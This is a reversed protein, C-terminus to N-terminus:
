VALLKDIQNQNNFLLHANKFKSSENLLIDNNANKQNEGYKINQQEFVENEITSLYKSAKEQQFSLEIKINELEKKAYQLIYESDQINSKSDISIDSLNKNYTELYSPDIKAIAKLEEQRNAQTSSAHKVITLTGITSKAGNDNANSKELIMTSEGLTTKYSITTDEYKSEIVSNVTLEKESNEWYIDINDTSDQNISVDMTSNINKNTNDSKIFKVSIDIDDNNIKNLQFKTKDSNISLNIGYESLKSTIKEQQTKGDTNTHESVLQFINQGSKNDIIAFSNGLNGDELFNEVDFSVEKINGLNFTESGNNSINKQTNKSSSTNLVLKLDTNTNNINLKNDQFSIDLNDSNEIIGNKDIKALTNNNTDQIEINDDFSNGFSSFDIVMKDNTNNILNKEFKILDISKNGDINNLINQNFYFEKSSHNISSKNTLDEIKAKNDTLKIKIDDQLNSIHVKNDKYLFSASNQSTTKFEKNEDITALLNNNTDFFEIKDKYSSSNFNDIDIVYKSIEGEKIINLNELNVLSDSSINIGDGSTSKLSLKGNIIDAEVSTQDTKSNIASTLSQTLDNEEFKVTGIKVGNISFNEDTQGAKINKTKINDIEFYSDYDGKFRLNIDNVIDKLNVQSDSNQMDLISEYDKQKMLGIDNDSKLFIANGINDFSTSSINMDLYRKDDIYYKKDALSGDLTKQGNYNSEKSIKEYENLLKSIDKQSTNSKHISDEIKEIINMQKEIQQTAGQLMGISNIVNKISNVNYNLRRNLKDSFLIDDQVDQYKQIKDERVSVLKSIDDLSSFPYSKSQAISAFSNILKEHDINIREM